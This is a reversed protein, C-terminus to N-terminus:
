GTAQDEPTEALAHPFPRWFDFPDGTVVDRYMTGDPFDIGKGLRRDVALASFQFRYVGLSGLSIRVSYAAGVPSARVWDITVALSWGPVIDFVAPDFGSVGPKLLTRSRELGAVRSFRLLHFDRDYDRPSLTGERYRRADEIVQPYNAFAVVIAISGDVRRHTLSLVLSESYDTEVLYRIPDVTQM